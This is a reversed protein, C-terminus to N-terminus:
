TIRQPEPSEVTGNRLLLYFLVAAVGLRILAHTWILWVSNYQGAGGVYISLVEQLASLCLGGMTAYVIVRNRVPNRFASYLLFALVLSAVGYEQRNLLLLSSIEAEPLSPFLRLLLAKGGFLLLCGKLTADLALLLLVLRLVRFSYRPSLSM